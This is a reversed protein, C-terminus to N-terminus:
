GLRFTSRGGPPRLVRTTKRDTIYNGCNQNRGCAYSNSSIRLRSGFGEVPLPHPMQNFDSRNTQKHGLYNSCSNSQENDNNAWGLSFTSRGGAPRSIRTSTRQQLPPPQIRPVSDGRSQRNNVSGNFTSENGGGEYSGVSRFHSNAVNLNSRDRKLQGNGLHLIKGKGFDGLVQGSLDGGFGAGQVEGGYFKTKRANFNSGGGIFQRNSNLQSARGDGDGRIQGNMGNSFRSSANRSFINVPPPRESPLDMRLRAASAAARSRSRPSLPLPLGGRKGVFSQLADDLNHTTSQVSNYQSRRPPPTRDAAWGVSWSSRGGPPDLLRISSRGKYINGTNCTTGDRRLGASGYSPM